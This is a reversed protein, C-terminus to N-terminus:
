RGRAFLRELTFFLALLLILFFPHTLDLSRLYLYLTALLGYVVGRKISNITYGIISFVLTFFLVFFLLTIQLKVVLQRIPIQLQLSPPLSLSVYLIAGLAALSLLLLSIRRRRRRM